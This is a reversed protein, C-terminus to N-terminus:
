QMGLARRLENPDSIVGGSTSTAGLPEVDIGYKQLLRTAETYFREANSKFQNPPQNVKPALKQLTAREAENIQKGSLEYVREATLTGSLNYLDTVDKPLNVFGSSASGLTGAMPGMWTQNSEALSLLRRVDQTLGQAKAIREMQGQSMPGRRLNDAPPAVSEKTKPNFFTNIEGTAGTLPFFQGINQQGAGYRSNAGDQRMQETTIQTSSNLRSDGSANVHRYQRGGEEIKTRGTTQDQIYQTNADPAVKNAV